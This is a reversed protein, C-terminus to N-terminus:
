YKMSLTRGSVVEVDEGVVEATSAGEVVTTATGVVELVTSAPIKAATAWTDVVVSIGAVVSIGVVEEGAGTGVDEEEEVSEVKAVTMVEDDSALVEDDDLAEISHTM